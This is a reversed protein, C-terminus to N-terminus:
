STFGTRASARSDFCFAAGAQEQWRHLPADRIIAGGFADAVILGADARLCEAAMAIDVAFFLKDCHARYDPWKRDARFDEISSKIEVIWIEGDPGLAM